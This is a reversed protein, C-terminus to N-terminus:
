IDRLPQSVCRARLGKADRDNLGRAAAEEDDARADTTNRLRAEKRNVLIIRGDDLNGACLHQWGIHDLERLRAHARQHIGDRIDDRQGFM